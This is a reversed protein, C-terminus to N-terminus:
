YICHFYMKCTRFTIGLTYKYMPSVPYDTAYVQDMRGFPFWIGIDLSKFKLPCYKLLQINRRSAVEDADGFGIVDNDKLANTVKNWEVIKQWRINEQLGELAWTSDELIEIPAEIADDVVLHIVKGRFKTFRSQVSLDSWM